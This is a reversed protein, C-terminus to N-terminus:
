KEGKTLTKLITAIPTDGSFTFLEAQCIISVLGDYRSIIKVQRGELHYKIEKSM